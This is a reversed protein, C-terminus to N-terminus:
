YGPGSRLTSTFRYLYTTNLPGGTARVTGVTKLVARTAPDVWLQVALYEDRGYDLDFTMRLADRSRGAAHVQQRGQNRVSLSGEDDDDTWQVDWQQTGTLPARLWELFPEPELVVNKIGDFTMEIKTIVAGHDTHETVWTAAWRSSYRTTTTVEVRDASLIRRTV